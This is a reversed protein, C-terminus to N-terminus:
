NFSMLFGEKNPINQQKKLAEQLSFVQEQLVRLQKAQEQFLRENIQSDKILLDRIFIFFFKLVKLLLCELLTILPLERHYIITSNRWKQSKELFNM